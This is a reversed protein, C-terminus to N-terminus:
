QRGHTIGCPGPAPEAPRAVANKLAFIEDTFVGTAGMTALEVFRRPENVTYVRWPIEDRECAQILEPTAQHDALHLAQSGVEALIERPTMAGHHPPHLLSALALHPDLRRLRWLALPHFSSVWVQDVLRHRHIAELLRAEIGADVRGPRPDVAEPKIELNIPLRGRVWDLTEDLSPLREGTFRRDKWSGADLQRLAAWDHDMVRGRGNTTRELTDDHILLLQGDRSQTVDVEVMDAGAALAAELSALTNEPAQAAFGRHGIIQTARRPM